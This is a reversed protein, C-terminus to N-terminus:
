LIWGKRSAKIDPQKDKVFSKRMPVKNVGDNKYKAPRSARRSKRAVLMVDMKMMVM